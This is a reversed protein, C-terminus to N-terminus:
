FFGPSMSDLIIKDIDHISLLFCLSWNYFPVYQTMDGWVYYFSEKYNWYSKGLFLCRFSYSPKLQQKRIFLVDNNM